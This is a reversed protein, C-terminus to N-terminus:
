KHAYPGPGFGTPMEGTIWRLAAARWESWIPSLRGLQTEGIIFIRRDCTRIIQGLESDGM